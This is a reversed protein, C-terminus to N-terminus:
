DGIFKSRNLQGEFSFNVGDEGKGVSNLNITDISDDIGLLYWLKAVVSLETTKGSMEFSLNDALDFTRIGISGARNVVGMIYQLIEKPSFVDEQLRRYLDIRDLIEDNSIIKDTYVEIESERNDLNEKAANLQQKSLINFLVIGLSLVVLVTLSIMSSVSFSFKKKEKTIEAKSKKPILNVGEGSNVLLNQDETLEKDDPQKQESKDKVQTQQKPQNLQEKKSPENEVEVLGSLFSKKEKKDKQQNNKKDNKNM